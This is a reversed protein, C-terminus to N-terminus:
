QSTHVFLKGELSDQVEKVRKRTVEVPRDYRIFGMWKADVGQLSVRQKLATRKTEAEQRFRQTVAGAKSTGNRSTKVTDIWLRTFPEVTCLLERALGESEVADLARQLHNELCSSLTRWISWVIDTLMQSTLGENKPGMSAALVLEKLAGVINRQSPKEYYNDKFDKGSNKDVIHKTIFHFWREGQGNIIHYVIMSIKSPDLPEKLTLRDSPDLESFHSRVAVSFYSRFRLVSKAEISKLEKVIEDSRKQGQEVIITEAVGLIWQWDLEIPLESMSSKVPPAEIDKSGLIHLSLQVLFDIIGLNFSSPQGNDETPEQENCETTYNTITKNVEYHERITTSLDTIGSSLTVCSM